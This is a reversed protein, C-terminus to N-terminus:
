RAKSIEKGTGMVRVFRATLLWALLGPMALLLISAWLYAQPSLGQWVHFVLAIGASLLSAVILRLGFYANAECWLADDGLTARTRYGYVPNRPVLRFVLPLSFLSFVACCGLVTILGKDLVNM